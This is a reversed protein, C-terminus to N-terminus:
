RVTGLKKLPWLRLIVKGVMQDKPICGVSSYRSDKSGNRNDGLVFYCGEEVTVPFRIDGLTVIEEASFADELPVGNVVFRYQQIDIVDGPVGIVRKIYYESPNEKYPFAVIDNPKPSSLWWAARSLIVVDGHNLTPEMSNGTVNAIRLLFSRIVFFLLLAVTIAMLWEVLNRIYVNHIRNKLM